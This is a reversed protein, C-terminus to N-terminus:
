VNEAVQTLLQIYEMCKAQNEAGMQRVPERLQDIITMIGAANPSASAGIDASYDKTIFFSIDGAMIQARYPVGIFQKWLLPLKKPHLGRLTAVHKIAARINVDEPFVCQVDALFSELQDNFIKTFNFQTSSASM